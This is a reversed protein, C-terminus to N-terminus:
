RRWGVLRVSARPLYAEAIQGDCRWWWVHLLEGHTGYVRMPAGGAVMQVTYRLPTADPVFATM